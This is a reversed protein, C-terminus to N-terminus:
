DLKFHEKLSKIAERIKKMYIANEQTEYILINSETEKIKRAVKEVKTTFILCRMNHIRDALKVKSVIDYECNEFINKFYDEKSLGEKKTLLDTCIAIKKGFMKEIDEFTTSTDEITDHLAAVTLIEEDTIGFENELIDIVGEIHTFYPTGEDRKQGEHQKKAYEIARDRMTKKKLLEEKMKNLAVRRASVDNKEEQSLEALTKGNPLEFIEDFGFGNEGRKELAIKGKIVGECSTLKKAKYDYYSICCVVRANRNEGTYDKMKELIYSNREDQSADEGLFRATYVGPWGQLIDICIGSDDSLCSLQIHEAIEKAKKQSNKEFTAQDEDVEIDVGAENLSLLEYDTLIEKIEKIKGKNNSAIVIKEM